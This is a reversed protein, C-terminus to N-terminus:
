LKGHTFKKLHDKIKDKPNVGGSQRELDRRMNRIEENEMDLHQATNQGTNDDMDYGGANLASICSSLEQWAHAKAVKTSM